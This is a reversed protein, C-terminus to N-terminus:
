APMLSPNQRELGRDRDGPREMNMQCLLSDRSPGGERDEGPRGVASPCFISAPPNPQNDHDLDSLDRNTICVQFLTMAGERRVREIIDHQQELPNIALVRAPASIFM